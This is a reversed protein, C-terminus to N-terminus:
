EIHYESKIADIKEQLTEKGSSVKKLGEELVTVAKEPNNEALYLDAYLRYVEPLTSNYHKYDDLLEEAVSFEKNQIATQIKNVRQNNTVINIVSVIIIVPIGIILSLKIIKARKAKRKANNEELVQRRHESYSSGCKPCIDENYELTAGCHCKKTKLKNYEKNLSLIIPNYKKTAQELTISGHRLEDSKKKQLITRLRDVLCRHQNPEFIYLDTLLPEIYEINGSAYGYFNMYALNEKTPELKCIEEYYGYAKEYHQNKVANDALAQLSSLRDSKDVRRETVFDRILIEAQCFKCKTTIKSSDVELASGCSPCILSILNDM